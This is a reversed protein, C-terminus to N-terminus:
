SAMIPASVRRAVREGEAERESFAFEPHRARLPCLASFFVARYRCATPWVTSPVDDPREWVGCCMNANRLRRTVVVSQSLAWCNVIWLSVHQILITNNLALLGASLCFFCSRPRSWHSGRWGWASSAGGIRRPRGAGGPRWELRAGGHTWSGGAHAFSALAHVGARIWKEGKRESRLERLNEVGPPLFRRTTQLPPGWLGRLSLREPPPCFLGVSPAGARPSVLLAQPSTHRHLLLACAQSAKIRYKCLLM